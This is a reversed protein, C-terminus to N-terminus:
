RRQREQAPQPGSRRRAARRHAELSVEPYEIRPHFMSTLIRTFTQAVRDLDRFTLDCEDLQGDELRERIIRRVVEGIRDPTPNSMARVAAEVADALMVIATERSQPKPGEYRYAEAEVQGEGREVARHYFYTMLTTGHHEPIFDAIAKPIGHQRAYELGDRIHAAVTLASLSPTMKDHPNPAGGVQNEVFFAPRRLKGVDHYYTGVRTLLADAGVAEAAAEAVNAVMVSHHYTGPAELQLRRLLPHSPNSLELLKIPTVLRFLDELYPLAGIALIGALVGNLVGLGADMAIETPTGGVILGVSLIVGVNAAGVLLGAYALDTRHQVRRMSFVGALAGVYAVAALRMDNGGVVGTLIALVGGTFSAVRPNLLITILMTAAAAPVLFASLRTAIIRTALVMVFVILALLLLHRDNAWIEPQHKKLYVASLGVVLVMFLVMGALMDWRMPSSALGLSQLKRIQEASVADGRRVIVQDRLIRERVPEVSARAAERAQRTAAEDVLLNPRVFRLVAFRALASSPGAPLHAERLLDRAQLQAAAIEDPRVGRDMMRHLVALTAQRVAEIEARSLTEAGVLAGDQLGLRTLRERRESDGLAREARLALISEFLDRIGRETGTTVAQELRYIPRVASAAEQRLAETREQNIYEVTRPATVEHPSVMGARLTVRPPLYQLAGVAALALVLTVFILV